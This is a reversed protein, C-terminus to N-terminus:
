GSEHEMESHNRQDDDDEGEEEGAEEDEDEGGEGGEESGEESGSGSGDDSDSGAEYDEDDEEDDDDEFEMENLAKQIEGGNEQEGNEDGRGKGNVNIKKARRGEAMSADNLQNSKLFADIPPFDAQDIMVFEIEESGNAASTQIHLNFTRQTINSYSVSEIADFFFCCLPKKFAWIIANELFFLYGEKTGRHAKVHYSIETKRHSQVLTSRFVDLNPEIVQLGGRLHNNLTSTILARFDCNEPQIGDMAKGSVNKLLGDNITWVWVEGMREGFGESNKTFVCFNWQKAAKDPVPLCTIYSIDKFFLESEQTTASEIQLSTTTIQLTFKKRQPLSFSIDPVRLLLESVGNDNDDNNDDKGVVTKPDLKRKKTAHGDVIATGEPIAARLSAIYSSIRSFTQHTGPLSTIIARVSEKLDAFDPATKDPFADDLFSTDLM